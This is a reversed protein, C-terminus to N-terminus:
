IGALAAAADPVQLEETVGSGELTVYKASETELEDTACDQNDLLWQALPALGKGQAIMARTHHKPRYPQYLDELATMTEVAALKTTLEDTLFKREELSKVMTNRRKDLEALQAMRDRIATIAVEDLTGTLEKRYRAIFPVTGGKAFLQATTAVQKVAIHLEQAVRALHLENM